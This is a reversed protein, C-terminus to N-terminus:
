KRESLKEDIIENIENRTVFNLPEWMDVYKQLVKIDEKKAGSQLEKLIMLIKSKM